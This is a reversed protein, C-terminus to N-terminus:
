PTLVVLRDSTVAGFVGVGGTLNGELVWDGGPGFRRRELDFVRATVPDAAVVWVVHTPRASFGVAPIVAVTDDRVWQPFIYGSVDSTDATLYVAVDRSSGSAWSVRLEIDPPHSVTDAAPDVVTIAPPVVATGRVVAGTAEVLLDYRRGHVPTFTAVFRAPTTTDRAFRHVAGGEGRVEVRSPPPDLPRLGAAIPDGAPTTREIWLVQQAAQANLVGQVVIQERGPPLTIESLGCGAVVASILGARFSPM